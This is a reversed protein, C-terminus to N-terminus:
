EVPNSYNLKVRHYYTDAWNSVIEGEVRVGTEEYFKDLTEELHKELERQKKIIQNITLESM